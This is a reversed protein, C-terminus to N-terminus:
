DNKEFWRGEFLIKYIQSPEFAELMVSLINSMTSYGSLISDKSILEHEVRVEKQSDFAEKTTIEIDKINEEGSAVIILQNKYYSLIAYDIKERRIYPMKELITFKDYPDVVKCDIINPVSMDISFGEDKVLNVCYQKNINGNLFGIIAIKNVGEYNNIGHVIAEYVTKSM